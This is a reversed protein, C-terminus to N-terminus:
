QSWFCLDYCLCQPLHDGETDLLIGGHVQGTRRLGVPQPHSQGHVKDPAGQTLCHLRHLRHGQGQFQRIHGGAHFVQGCGRVGDVVAKENLAILRLFYTM